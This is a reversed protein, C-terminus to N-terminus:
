QQNYLRILQDTIDISETYYLSASREVILTYGGKKGIQEVLAFVEKQVQQIIQGEFKKFEEAYNKQMEKFDMVKIRFDREKESKAKENMVLSEAELKKKLKELEEAEGKLTAEYSKGKKEIKVKAAQGGKSERLVRQFDIVGIKIDAAQVVPAALLTLGIIVALFRNLKM